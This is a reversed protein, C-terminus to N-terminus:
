RIFRVMQGDLGIWGLARGDQWIRGDILVSELVRFGLNRRWSAHEPVHVPELICFRLLTYGGEKRSVYFKPITADHSGFFIFFIPLLSLSMPFLHGPIWDLGESRMSM